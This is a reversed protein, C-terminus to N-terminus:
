PCGGSGASSSSTRPWRRPTSTWRSPCRRGAAMGASGAALLGALLLYPNALLDVCKVELNAAWETSGASGTVMRIAAERNELGWCAYAGAWHQPVLRLYSAVSPAGLALLAPLHELVGAGFAEGDATLGFRRDGCAMLNKGDRWLSLHVHGGNGM